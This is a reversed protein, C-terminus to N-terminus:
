IATTLLAVELRSRQAERIVVKDICRVLSTVAIRASTGVVASFGCVLEVIM